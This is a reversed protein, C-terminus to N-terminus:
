INTIFQTLFFFYFFQEYIIKQECTEGDQRSASCFYSASLMTEQAKSTFEDETNTLTCGLSCYYIALLSDIDDSYTSDVEDSM